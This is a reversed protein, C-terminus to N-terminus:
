HVPSDQRNTAPGRGSTLHGANGGVYSEPETPKTPLSASDFASDSPRRRNACTVAKPTVPFPRVHLDHHPGGGPKPLRTDRPLPHSVGDHRPAPTHQVENGVRITPYGTQRSLVQSDTGGRPFRPGGDAHRRTGCAWQCHTRTAQQGDCAGGKCTSSRPASWWLRRARDVPGWPPRNANRPVDEERRHDRPTLGGSGSHRWLGAALRWLM